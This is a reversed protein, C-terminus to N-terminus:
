RFGGEVYYCICTVFFTFFVAAAIGAAYSEHFVSFIVLAVTGFFGIMMLVVYLLNQLFKM